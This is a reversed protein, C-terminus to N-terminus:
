RQVAEIWDFPKDCLSRWRSPEVELLRPSPPRELVLPGFPGLSFAGGNGPRLDSGGVRLSIRHRGAGLVTEALPSYQGTTDIRGRASGARRGDVLVELLRRRVAGGVWLRHLRGRPISVSGDYSGGDPLEAAAQWGGRAAVLM